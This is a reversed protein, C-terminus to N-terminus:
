IYNNFNKYKSYIFITKCDNIKKNHITIKQTFLIIDMKKSLGSLSYNFMRTNMFEM